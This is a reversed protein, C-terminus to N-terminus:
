SGVVPALQGTYGESTANVSARVQPKASRGPNPAWGPQIWHWASKGPDACDFAFQSLAIWVGYLLVGVLTREDINILSLVYQGLETIATEFPQIVKLAHPPPAVQGNKRSSM